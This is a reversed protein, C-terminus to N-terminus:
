RKKPKPKLSILGAKGATIIEDQLKLCPARLLTAESGANPSRKANQIRGDMTQVQLMLRAATSNKVEVRKRKNLTHLAEIYKVAEASRQLDAANSRGVDYTRISKSM